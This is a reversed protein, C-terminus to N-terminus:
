NNVLLDIQYNIMNDKMSHEIEKTQIPKNSKNYSTVKLKIKSNENINLLQINHSFDDKLRWPDIDVDVLINDVNINVKITKLNSIPSIPTPTASPTISASSSASPNVSSPTLSPSVVVSSSVSPIVTPVVKPITPVLLRISYSSDKNGLKYLVRSLGKDYFLSVKDSIERKVPMTNAVNILDLDKNSRVVAQPSCALVILPLTLLFTFNNKRM